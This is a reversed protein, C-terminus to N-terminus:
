VVTSEEWFWVRCIVARIAKSAGDSRPRSISGRSAAPM